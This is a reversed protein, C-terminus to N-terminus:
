PEPGRKRRREEELIRLVEDDEVPDFRVYFQGVGMFSPPTRLCVMEDVDGALRRVTAESGVPMAAILTKPREQRVAWLAAQTTAGTAVGDDTVIVIRGQLPVKPLIHRVQRARLAIQAMQREKEQQIYRYDIGLERVITENLFLRGNEAVSGMALERQGPTRLKRALVVDLDAELARALEWAIIVGGRPIGLVVARQGRLDRLEHSLFLG